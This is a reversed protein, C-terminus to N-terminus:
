MNFVFQVISRPNESVIKLESKASVIDKTVWFNPHHYKNSSGASIVCFETKNTLMEKRWNYKSGHHPVQITGIQDYDNITNLFREWIDGRPVFDGFYVCRAIHNISIEEENESLPRSEIIMTYLNDSAGNMASKFALKLEKLHNFAELSNFVDNILVGPIRKVNDILVKVRDDSGSISNFPRYCWGINTKNPLVTGSDVIDTVRPLLKSEYRDVFFPQVGIINYFDGYYLDHILEDCSFAKEGYKVINYIRSATIIDEPLMPLIIWKPPLKKILTQIGSIHDMHLHSVCLLDIYHNGRGLSSSFDTIQDCLNKGNVTKFSNNSTETGCDYVMILHNTKNDSFVESYFAGQGVPHFTRRLTLFLGKNTKITKVIRM